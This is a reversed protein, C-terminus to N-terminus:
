ALVLVVLRLLQRPLVPATEALASVSKTDDPMTYIENRQLSDRRVQVRRYM